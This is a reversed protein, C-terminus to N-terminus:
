YNKKKVMKEERKVSARKVQKKKFISLIGM